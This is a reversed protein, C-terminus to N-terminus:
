AVLVGNEDEMEEQRLRWAPLGIPRIDRSYGPWQDRGIADALANLDERIERRGIEMSIPDLVYVANLYPAKKEVAGFVFHKPVELGEPLRQGSQEIAKRLGDLYFPAQVYYRFKEVSREFSHERADDTTKLDFVVDGVWLDPRCRCLLGTEEDRWYASLEAKGRPDTLLKRMKPHELAADRMGRVDRWQAPTLITKGAAEEAHMAKLDDLIQVSPDAERLRDILDSKKGSVPLGHEKLRAKLDDTTALADPWQSGDFPLAFEKEFQDPELLVGHEASGVVMAATEEREAGAARQEQAFKFHALSRRVVDLSSKSVGPGGHYEANSKGAFIGLPHDENGTM